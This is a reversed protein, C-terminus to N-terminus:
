ISMRTRPWRKLSFVQRKEIWVDVSHRGGREIATDLADLDNACELIEANSLSRDRTLFLFQYMAMDCWRTKALPLAPVTM